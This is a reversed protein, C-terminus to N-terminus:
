LNCRPFPSKFRYIEYFERNSEHSSPRSQNYILEFVTIFDIISVGKVSIITKAIVYIVMVSENINSCKFNVGENVM